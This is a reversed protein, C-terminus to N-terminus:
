TGWQEEEQECDECVGLWEAPDTCTQLLIIGEKVAPKANCVDCLYDTSPFEIIQVTGLIVAHATM